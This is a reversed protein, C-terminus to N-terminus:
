RKGFLQLMDLFINIVDLYLNMTALIYDDISYSIAKNGMLLQTDYILYFGFLLLGICNFIVELLPTHFFILIIGAMVFILGAIFLFGGWLTFDSKTTFAYATLGFCLAITMGGTMYVTGPTFSLCFYSVIYAECTTFVAMTLFNYPVKRQFDVFCVLAYLTILSLIIAIVVIYTNQIMFSTLVPSNLTFIVFAFTVALQTTLLLYVKRIFGMQKTQKSQTQGGIIDTKLASEQGPLLKQIEDDISVGSNHAM